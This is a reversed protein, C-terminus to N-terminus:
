FFIEWYSELVLVLVPLFFFLVGVALLGVLLQGTLMVAAVTVGYLLLFYLLNLLWGALLGGLVNGVPVGYACSVGVYFILNLLYIGAIILVGGTYQVLYMMERRIPRSRSFDEKRRNRLYAFSSVGMVVATVIM